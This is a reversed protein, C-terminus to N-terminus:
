VRGELSWGYRRLLRGAAKGSSVGFFKPKHKGVYIEADHYKGTVIKVNEVSLNNSLFTPDGEQLAEVQEQTLIDMYFFLMKDDDGLILKLEYKVQWDL